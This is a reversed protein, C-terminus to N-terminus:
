AFFALHDLSHKGHAALVLFAVSLRRLLISRLLGVLKELLLLVVRLVDVLLLLWRLLLNHIREVLGLWGLLLSLLLDFVAVPGDIDDLLADSVLDRLPICLAELLAVLVEQVLDGLIVKLNNVILISRLFLCTRSSTM